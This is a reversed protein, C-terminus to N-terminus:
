IIQHFYKNTKTYEIANNKLVLPRNNSFNYKEILLGINTPKFVFQSIEIIKSLSINDNTSIM